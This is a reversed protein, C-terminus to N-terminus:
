QQEMVLIIIVMVVTESKPMSLSWIIKKLVHTYCGVYLLSTLYTKFLVKIIFFTDYNNWHFKLIYIWAFNEGTM